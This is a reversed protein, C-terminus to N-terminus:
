RRARPDGPRDGMPPSRRRSSRARTAAFAGVEIQDRPHQQADAVIVNLPVEAAPELGPLVRASRHGAAARDVGLRQSPAQLGLPVEDDDVHALRVFPLFPLM